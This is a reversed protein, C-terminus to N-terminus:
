SSGRDGNEVLLDIFSKVGDVAMDHTPFLATSVSKQYEPFFISAYYFKRNEKRIVFVKVSYGQYEFCDM